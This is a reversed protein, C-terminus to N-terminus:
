IYALPSLYKKGVATDPSCDTKGTPISIFRCLNKEGEIYYHVSTKKM